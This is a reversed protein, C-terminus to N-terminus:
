FDFYFYQFIFFVWVAPVMHVGVGARERGYPRGEKHRGMGRSKVNVVTELSGVCSGLRLWKSGKSVIQAATSAAVYSAM